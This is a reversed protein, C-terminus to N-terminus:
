VDRASRALVSADQRAAQDRDPRRDSGARPQVRQVAGAGIGQGGMLILMGAQGAGAAIAAIGVVMSLLMPIMAKQIAATSRTLHGAVMHGTEHAMVGKLESANHAFMIMGTLIFMNQGEAVFANVTPDNVLYIKVGAPDLGGARLLPDEYSRLARETETDRLLLIGQAAAPGTFAALSGFFGCLFALGRAFGRFIATWPKPLSCLTAFRWPKFEGLPGRAGRGTPVTHPRAVPTM